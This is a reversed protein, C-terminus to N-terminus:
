FLYDNDIILNESQAFVNDTFGQHDLDTFYNHQSTTINPAFANIPSENPIILSTSLPISPLNPSSTMTPSPTGTSSSSATPRIPTTPITQSPCVGNSSSTIGIPVKLQVVNYQAEHTMHEPSEPTRIAEVKSKAPRIKDHHLLKSFGDPGTIGYNAIGFKKKVYYPGKLWRPNASVHNGYNRRLLVEQGIEYRVPDASKDYRKKYEAQAEKRNLDSNKQIVRPEFVEEEEQGPLGLFSDIPMRPKTGWMTMFPSYQTSKNVINNAALVAEPLLDDWDSLDRKRSELL